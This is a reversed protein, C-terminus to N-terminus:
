FNISFLDTIRTVPFNRRYSRKEILFFHMLNIQVHAWFFHQFNESNGAFKLLDNMLRRKKCKPPFTQKNDVNTQDQQQQQQQQLFFRKLNLNELTLRSIATPARDFLGAFYSFVCACVHVLPPCFLKRKLSATDGRPGHIVLWSM